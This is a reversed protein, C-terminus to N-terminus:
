FVGFSGFPQCPFFVEGFCRSIVPGKRSISSGQRKLDFAMENKTQSSHMCISKGKTMCLSM